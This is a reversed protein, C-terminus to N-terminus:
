RSAACLCHFPVPTCLHTRLSRGRLSLFISVNAEHLKCEAAIKEAKKQLEIKFDEVTTGPQHKMVAWIAPRKM